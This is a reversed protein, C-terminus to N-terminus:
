KKFLNIAPRAAPAATRTQVTTRCKNLRRLFEDFIEKLLPLSEASFTGADILSHYSCEFNKVDEEFADLTRYMRPGPSFKRHIGKYEDELHKYVQYIAERNAKNLTDFSVESNLSFALLDLAMSVILPRFSILSSWESPIDDIGYYAGALQGYIAGTTDADDGLNVALRM